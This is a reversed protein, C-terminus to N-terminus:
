QILTKLMDVTVPNTFNDITCAIVSECNANHKDTRVNLFCLSVTGNSVSEIAFECVSSENPIKSTNGTVQLAYVQAYIGHVPRTVDSTGDFFTLSVKGDDQRTTKLDITHCTKWKFMRTHKRTCCVGDLIPMFILGDAGHECLALAKPLEQLLYFRKCRFGLYDANGCPVLKGSQRVINPAGVNHWNKPDYLSELDPQTFGEVDEFFLRKLKSYRQNFDAAVMSEGAVSVVDFVRYVLRWKGDSGDVAERVLEGDFLSGLKFYNNRGCVIIPYMTWGRTILVAVNVGKPYQTLLLLHRVGDHKPAVLYPQHMITALHEKSM